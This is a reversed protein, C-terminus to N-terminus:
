NYSFMSENDYDEGADMASKAIDKYGHVFRESQIKKNKMLSFDYRDGENVENGGFANVDISAKFM